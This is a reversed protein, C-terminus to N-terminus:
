MSFDSLAPGFRAIFDHNLVDELADREDRPREYIHWHMDKPKAGWGSEGL